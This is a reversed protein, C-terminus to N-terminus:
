RALAHARSRTLRTKRKSHEGTGHFSTTEAVARSIYRSELDFSSLFPQLRRVEELKFDLFDIKGKYADAWPQRDNISFKQNVDRLIVSDSSRSARKVPFIRLAQLKQLAKRSPSMSNIQWILSKVDDVTLKSSVSRSLEDVLMSLDPIKVKLTVVFFDKLDGYDGMIM